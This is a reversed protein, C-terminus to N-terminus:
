DPARRGHETEPEVLFWPINNHPLKKDLAKNCKKFFITNM